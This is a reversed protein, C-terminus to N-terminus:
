ISSSSIKRRRTKATGRNTLKMKRTAKYHSRKRTNKHRVTDGIKLTKVVNLTKYGVTPNKTYILLYYSINNFDLYIDINQKMEWNIDTRKDTKAIQKVHELKNFLKSFMNPFLKENNFDTILGPYYGILDLQTKNNIYKTKIVYKLYNQFFIFILLIINNCDYTNIVKFVAMCMWYPKALYTNFGSIIYEPCFERSIKVLLEYYYLQETEKFRYDSNIIKTIINKHEAKIHTNQKYYVVAFFLYLAVYNQKITNYLSDDKNQQINGNEVENEIQQIANYSNELFNFIILKIENNINSNRSDTKITKLTEIFDEINTETSIVTRATETLSACLVIFEDTLTLLVNHILNSYMNNNGGTYGGIRKHQPSIPPSGPPPSYSPTPLRVPSPPPPYPPPPPPPPSDTPLPSDPPPGSPPPYPPTPLRVPSPPPPYPPPPPPISSDPKLSEPKIYLSPLSPFKSKIIPSIINKLEAYYKKNSDTFDIIKKKIKYEIEKITLLNDSIKQFSQGTEMRILEAIKDISTFFGKNLLESNYNKLSISRPQRDDPKFSYIVQIMDRMNIIFTNDYYFFRGKNMTTFKEINESVLKYNYINVNQDSYNSIERFFDNPNEINLLHLFQIHTIYICFKAYNALWTDVDGKKLGTPPPGTDSYISPLKQICTQISQKVHKMSETEKQIKDKIEKSAFERLKQIDDESLDGPFRYLKLHTGFHWITNQGICRSYLGCLRDITCLIVRNKLPSDMLKNIVYAANCQEWDGSRKLDLLLTKNNKINANLGTLDVMKGEAYPDSGAILNSLYKVSPGSKHDSDFQIHSFKANSQNNITIQFDYKNQETYSDNPKNIHLTYNHKTYINSTYTFNRNNNIPFEYKNKVGARKQSKDVSLHSEGLASDAINLPTVLNIVQDLPGFIKSPINSGADFTIYSPLTTNYIGDDDSTPPPFYFNLMFLAILIKDQPSYHIDWDEGTEMDIDLVGTQTYDGFLEKGALLVCKNLSYKKTSIKNITTIITRYTIIKTLSTNLEIFQNEFFLVTQEEVKSASSVLKKSNNGLWGSYTIDKINNKKIAIDNLSNKLLIDVADWSQIDVRGGKDDFDHISDAGALFKIFADESKVTENKLLNTYNFVTM